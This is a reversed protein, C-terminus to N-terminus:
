HRLVIANLSPVGVLWSRLVDAPLTEAAHGPLALAAQVGVAAALAAFGKLTTSAQWNRPIDTTVSADQADKHRREVETRQGYVRWATSEGRTHPDTRSRGM